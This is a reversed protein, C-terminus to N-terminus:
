SDIGIGLKSLDPNFPGTLKFKTIVAIVRNQDDLIRPRRTKEGQWFVSGQLALASGGHM